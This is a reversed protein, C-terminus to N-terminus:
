GRVSGGWRLMGRAARIDASTAEPRRLENVGMHELAVAVNFRVVPDWPRVHLVRLLTRYAQEPQNHRLLARALCTRVDADHDPRRGICNQYLKIASEFQGLEVYCHALNLWADTM